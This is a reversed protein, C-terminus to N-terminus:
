GHAVERSSPRSHMQWVQLDNLLRALNKECRFIVNRAQAAPEDSDVADSANLAHWACKLINTWDHLEDELEHFSPGIYVRKEDLGPKAQKKSSHKKAM